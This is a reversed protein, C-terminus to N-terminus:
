KTQSRLAVCLVKQVQVQGSQTPLAGSVSMTQSRLLQSHTQGSSLQAPPQWPRAVQLSVVQSQSHLWLM